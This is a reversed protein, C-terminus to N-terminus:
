LLSSLLKYEEKIEQNKYAKSVDMVTDLIENGEDTVMDTDDVMNHYQLMNEGEDTLVLMSDGIRMLGMKVLTERATVLNETKNTDAYAKQPSSAIKVLLLVAMQTNNLVATNANVLEKLITM